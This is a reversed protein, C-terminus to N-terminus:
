ARASAWDTSPLRAAVAASTGARGRIRRITSSVRRIYGGAANRDRVARAASVMEAYVDVARGAARAIRAASREAAITMVPALAAVNRHTFVPAAARRQWMWHEGEAVFLSDGIAPQLILKTVESKPYQTVKDRLVVKLAGPDMVMHWRKGTKGSLMPVHTAIEPILELVNRRGAKLSGFVGLPASHLPVRAPTEALPATPHPMAAPNPHDM